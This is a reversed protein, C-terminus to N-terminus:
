SESKEELKKLNLEPIKDLAIFIAGNNRRKKKGREPAIWVPQFSMEWDWPLSSIWKRLRSFAKCLLKSFKDKCGLNDVPEIQIIFTIEYKKRPQYHYIVLM